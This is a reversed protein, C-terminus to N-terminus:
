VIASLEWVYNSSLVDIDGAQLAAIRKAFPLKQFKVKDADNFIAAAIARCFDVDFGTWHGQDDSTSFGPIGDSVGCLLFGRDRVSDLTGMRQASAPGVVLMVLMLTLCFAAKAINMLTAAGRSCPRDRDYLM